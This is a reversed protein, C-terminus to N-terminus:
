PEKDAAPHEKPGKNKSTLDYLVKEKLELTARYDGREYVYLKNGDEDEEERLEALNEHDASETIIAM